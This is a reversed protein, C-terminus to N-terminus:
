GLFYFYANFIIEKLINPRVIANQPLFNEKNFINPLTDCGFVIKPLTDNQCLTKEVFHNEAFHRAAM